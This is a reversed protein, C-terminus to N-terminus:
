LNISKAKIFCINVLHPDAGHICANSGSLRKSSALKVNPVNEELYVLSCYIYPNKKLRWDVGWLGAAHQKHADIILVSVKLWGQTRRETPDHSVM